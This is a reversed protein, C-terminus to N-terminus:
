RATITDTTRPVYLRQQYPRSQKIGEVRHRRTLGLSDLIVPKHGEPEVLIYGAIRRATRTSDTLLTLEQRHPDNTNLSGTISELAGDTYWATMNWRAGQLPTITRARLTYSDGPEWNADSEYTFTYIRSASRPTVVWPLADIWLDVSDGAVSMALDGAAVANAEALRHELIEISRDTVDQYRKINHGYWVLSSDYQEATVGHREFVANRVALKRAPAAYDQQRVKVMADAMRVDAMLEAMRGPPIVGDPVRNCCSLTIIALIFALLRTM